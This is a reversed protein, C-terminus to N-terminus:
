NFSFPKYFNMCTISVPLEEALKVFNDTHLSYEFSFYQGSTPFYIQNLNDYVGNLLYNFYLENDEYSRPPERMSGLAKYLHLHDMQGGLHLMMNGIYFESLVLNFTNRTIGLNYSLDGREYISLDNRGIKYNIGGKYFIGRNISYDVTLYSDRSLRVTIDFMSNLSSNLRITYECIAAM